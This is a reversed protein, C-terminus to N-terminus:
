YLFEEIVKGAKFRVYGTIEYETEFQNKGVKGGKPVKFYWFEEDPKIRAVFEKWPKHLHGFAIEPAYGLPDKVLNLSEAEIPSIPCVLYNPSCNFDPLAQWAKNRRDQRISFPLWILFGPWGIVVCSIAFCYIAIEQLQQKLTVEKGLAKNIGKVFESPRNKLASGLFYLSMLIGPTIYIYLYDIWASPRWSLLSEM